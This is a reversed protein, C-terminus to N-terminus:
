MMVACESDPSRSARDRQRTWTTSSDYAENSDGDDSIARDLLREVTRARDLEWDVALHDVHKLLSRRLRVHVMPRDDNSRM